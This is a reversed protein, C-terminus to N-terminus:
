HSPVPQMKAVAARNLSMFQVEINLLNLLTLM